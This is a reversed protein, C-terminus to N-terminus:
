LGHTISGPKVILMGRQVDKQEIGRLFLGVNDGAKGEDLVKHFMEIRACVSNKSKRQLGVIEVADGVHIRGQRVRGTVVMGLSKIFFVDEVPMVFPKDLDAPNPIHRDEKDVQMPQSAPAESRMAAPIVISEGCYLCTITAQNGQEALNNKVPAGCKPCDFSDAM